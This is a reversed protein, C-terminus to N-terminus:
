WGWGPGFGWEQGWPGWAGWNWQADSYIEATMQQEDALHQEREHEKLNNYASQNGVYFCNCM